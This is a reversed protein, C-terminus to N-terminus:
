KQILMYAYIMLITKKTVNYILVFIGKTKISKMFSGLKKHIKKCDREISM